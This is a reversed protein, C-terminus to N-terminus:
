KSFVSLHVVGLTLDRATSQKVAAAIQGRYYNPDVSLWVAVLGAVLVIMGGMLVSLIKVTRM